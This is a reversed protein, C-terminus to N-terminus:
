SVVHAIGKGAILDQVRAMLMVNKADVRTPVEMRLHDGSASEVFLEVRDLGPHLGFVKQLQELLLRSLASPELMVELVKPKNTKESLELPEIATALFQDGRDSRDIRGLIRVFVDGIQEGTQEDTQGALVAASKKYAMPFVVVDLENEMDELQVIAM